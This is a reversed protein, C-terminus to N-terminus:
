ASPPGSLSSIGGSLDSRLSGMDTCIRAGIIGEIGCGGRMASSSACSYLVNEYNGPWVQVMSGCPHSESPAGAPCPLHRRM